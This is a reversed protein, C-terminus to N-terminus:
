RSESFYWTTGSCRDYIWKGNKDKKYYNKRTYPRENENSGVEFIVLEETQDIKKTYAKLICSGKDFINPCYAGKNVIMVGNENKKILNKYFNEAMYKPMTASFLKIFNEKSKINKPPFFIDNKEDVIINDNFQKLPNWTAKLIVSAKDKDFPTKAYRYSYYSYIGVICILIVFLKFIPIYIPKAENKFEYLIEKFGEGVSMVIIFLSIFVVLVIFNIPDM